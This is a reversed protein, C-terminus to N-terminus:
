VGPWKINLMESTPDMEQMDPCVNSGSNMFFMYEEPKGDLIVIRGDDYVLQGNDFSNKYVYIEKPHGLIRTLTKPSISQM